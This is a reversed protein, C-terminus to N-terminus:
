EVIVWIRDIATCSQLIMPPTDFHHHVGSEHIIAHGQGKNTRFLSPLGILDLVVNFFPFCRSDIRLNLFIFISISWMM